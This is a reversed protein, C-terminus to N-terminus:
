DKFDAQFKSNLEMIRGELKKEIELVEQKTYCDNVRELLGRGELGNDRLMIKEM